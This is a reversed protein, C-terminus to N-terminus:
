ATIPDYRGGLRQREYRALFDSQEPHQVFAAYDEVWSRFPFFRADIM